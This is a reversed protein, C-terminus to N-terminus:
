YIVAVVVCHSASAPAAFRILAIAATATTASVVCGFFGFLSASSEHIPCIGPIGISRRIIRIRGVRVVPVGVM